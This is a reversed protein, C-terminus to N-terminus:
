AHCAHRSCGMSTTIEIGDGYEAHVIAWLLSGSVYHCCTTCHEYVLYVATTYQDSSPWPARVSLMFRIVVDVCVCVNDVVCLVAARTWSM